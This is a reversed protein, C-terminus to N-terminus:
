RRPGPEAPSLAEYPVAVTSHTEDRLRVLATVPIGTDPELEGASVFVGFNGKHDEIGANKYGDKVGKAGLDITVFHGTLADADSRRSMNDMHGNVTAHVRSGGGARDAAPVVDQKSAM